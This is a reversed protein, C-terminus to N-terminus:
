CFVNVCVLYPIEEIETPVKVLSRPKIINLSRM